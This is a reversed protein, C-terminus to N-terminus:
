PLDRATSRSLRDAWYIPEPLRRGLLLDRVIQVAAKVTMGYGPSVYLPRRRQPWPPIAAGLLEDGSYIPQWGEHNEEAVRGHLLKKTVGITPQRTLLGWTRAIGMRRPHLLGAGDIMWLEPAVGERQFAGYLTLFAPLERFALYGPIYPMTVTTKASHSGVLAGGDDVLACTAVAECESAYSVDLGAILRPHLKAALPERQNALQSQWTRLAELPRTSHFDHFEYRLLAIGDHSDFEIGEAVLRQRKADLDGGPYGGLVGGARLVRHCPCDPLHDHHLLFHGIWRSAAVDGLTQALAGCTTVKGRPVQALLAVLEAELDPIPPLTELM